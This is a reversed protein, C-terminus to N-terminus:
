GLGLAIRVDEEITRLQADTLRGLLIELKSRDLATAQLLFMM